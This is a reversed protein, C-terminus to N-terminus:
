HWESPRRLVFGDPKAVENPFQSHRLKAEGIVFSVNAMRELQISTRRPPFAVVIRKQPFFERIALVPPVLDSDGSILLATDYNDCFADTLMETAINVDTMKEEHSRWTAGCRYCQITKGLYHGEFIEFDTLISLAELFTNQRRRKADLDQALAPPDDKLAGSIRATFYKTFVLRQFPKLLSNALARLDLWYYRRWGCERLGFYLNFGDIYAIVRQAGRPRKSRSNGKPKPV